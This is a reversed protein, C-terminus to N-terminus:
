SVKEYGAGFIKPKFLKDLLPTFSNMILIAFGVGEPYGGYVRIAVTLIGCGAGFLIKGGTFMPSTTYDTAMFFAGLILGGSLLHYVPTVTANNDFLYIISSLIFVTLIFAFPIHYSIVRKYILFLGGLFLAFPSIEGMSGGMSIFLRSIEFGIHNVAGNMSIDTKAIGLVTAGSLADYPLINPLTWSTMLAPFSILLIMRGTLAPNFLNQGLGGFVMKGVVIAFFCGIVATWVPLSPPLTMALLLGTLVASYDRITSYKGEIKCFIHEFLVSFLICTLYLVLSYIGYSIISIIVSPLLSIIVLKMVTETKMKNRIHPAFSVSFLHKDM